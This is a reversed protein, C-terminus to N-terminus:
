RGDGNIILRHLVQVEADLENPSETFYPINHRALLHMFDLKNIGMLESAKGSSIRGQRFLELAVVEQLYPGLDALPLDLAGALDRPVSISVQVTEM